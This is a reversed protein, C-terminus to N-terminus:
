RSWQPWYWPHWSDPISDTELPEGSGDANVLFFTATQTQDDWVAYAVQRGDPSWCLDGIGGSTINGPLTFTVLDMLATGDANVVAIRYVYPGPPESNLEVASFAIQTSDPSWVPNFPCTDPDGAHMMMESREVVVVIDSGDPRMTKITCSDWFVIRESDPSWSPYGLGNPGQPSLLRTVNAGHANMMYIESLDPPETGGFLGDFLIREGDPSWSMAKGYTRGETLRRTNSGDCNRVFIDYGRSEDVYLHPLFTGIRPYARCNALGTYGDSLSALGDTAKTHCYLHRVGVLALLSGGNGNNATAFESL